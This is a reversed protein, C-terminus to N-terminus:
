ININKTIKKYEQLNEYNVFKELKKAAQKKNQKGVKNAYNGVANAIKFPMARGYQDCFSEYGMLIYESDCLKYLGIKCNNINYLYHTAENSPNKINIYKLTKRFLRSVFIVVVCDNNNNNKINKIRIKM